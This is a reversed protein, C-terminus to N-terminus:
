TNLGMERSRFKTMWRQEIDLIEGTTAATGAVELISAEYDSPDRSKLRVADGYNRIHDQRRGWFGEAGDAKGVYQEKTRPCTLLYVGKANKLVEKWAWLLSDLKSLPKIFELFGPFEPERFEPRL